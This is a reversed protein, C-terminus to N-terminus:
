EQLRRGGALRTVLGNRLSATSTYRAMATVTVASETGTLQVCFAVCGVLLFASVDCSPMDARPVREAGADPLVVGFVV